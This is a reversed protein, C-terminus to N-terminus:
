RYVPWVLMLFLLFQGQYLVHVSCLHVVCAGPEPVAPVHVCSHAYPRVGRTPQLLSMHSGM